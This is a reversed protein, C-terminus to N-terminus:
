PIAGGQSNIRVLLGLGKFDGNLLEHGYEEWDPITVLEDYYKEKLHKIKRNIMKAADEGVFIGEKRLLDIPQSLFENRFSQNSNCKYFFDALQEPTAKILNDEPM